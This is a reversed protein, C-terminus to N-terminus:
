NTYILNDFQMKAIYITQYIHWSVHFPKKLTESKKQKKYYCILMYCKNKEVILYAQTDKAISVIYM